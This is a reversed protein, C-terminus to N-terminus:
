NHFPKNNKLLFEIREQTKETGLLSLFAERELDLFHQETSTGAEINGGCLITAIHLAIVGDHESIVKKDVKHDIESKFISIGNKGVVTINTIPTKNCPSHKVLELAKEKAIEIPSTNSKVITDISSLFLKKAETGNR